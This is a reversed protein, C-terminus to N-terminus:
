DGDRAGECHRQCKGPVGPLPNGPGQQHHQRPTKGAVQVPLGKFRGRLARRCDIQLTGDPNLIKCGAAAAKPHDDLFTVLTRLTDPRVVTDSNLLLVYRGTAQEFAINNAAAFGVNRENCILKVSPFSTRVMEVSDDSSANDVVFIEVELDVAAERVTRLAQEMLDRTNYSPIVVSVDVAGAAQAQM